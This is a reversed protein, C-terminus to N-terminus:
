IRDMRESLRQFALDQARTTVDPEPSRVRSIEQEDSRHTTEFRNRLGRMMEHIPLIASHTEAEVCAFRIADGDKDHPRKRDLHDSDSHFSNGNTAPPAKSKHGEALIRRALWDGVSIGERLANARALERAEQPVDSLTWSVIHKM